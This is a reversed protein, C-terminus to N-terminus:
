ESTHEESRWETLLQTLYAPLRITRATNILSRKISQRIWFAAYTSFRTDMSADFGEAARLLGLNGEAILDSLDLGKGQYKRAINVVLRLNARVLHERAEADGDQIRWALEKEEQASLLPTEDIQRLYLAFGPLTSNPRAPHTAIM